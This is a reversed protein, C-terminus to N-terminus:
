RIDRGWFNVAFKIEGPQQSSVTTLGVTRIDAKLSDIHLSPMHNILYELASEGNSKEKFIVGKVYFLLLLLLM